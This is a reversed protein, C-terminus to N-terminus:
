NSSLMAWQFHEYECRLSTPDQCNASTRGPSQIGRLEAPNAQDNPRFQSCSFQSSDPLQETSRSNRDEHHEPAVLLTHTQAEPCGQSRDPSVTPPKACPENRRGKCPMHPAHLEPSHVRTHGPLSQHDSFSMSIAPLMRQRLMEGPFRFSLTHASSFKELDTNQPEAVQHARIICDAHQRCAPQRLIAPEGCSISTISPPVGRDEIEQM